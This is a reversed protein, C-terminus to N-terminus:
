YYFNLPYVRLSQFSKNGPPPRALNAPSAPRVRSLPSFSLFCRVRKTSLTPTNTSLRPGSQVFACRSSSVALRHTARSCRVVSLPCRIPCYFVTSLYIRRLRLFDASRHRRPRRPRRPRTCSLCSLPPLKIVLLGLMKEM